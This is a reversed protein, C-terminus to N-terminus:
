SDIAFEQLTLGTAAVPIPAGVLRARALARWYEPPAPFFLNDLNDRERAVDFQVRVLDVIDNLAEERTRAETVIDLELCHVEVGTGTQRVLVHLVHPEPSETDM